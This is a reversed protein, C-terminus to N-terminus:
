YRDYKHGEERIKEASKGAKIQDYEWMMYALYAPNTRSQNTMIGNAAGKFLHAIDEKPIIIRIEYPMQMKYMGIKIEGDEQKMSTHHVCLLLRQELDIVPLYETNHDANPCMQGFFHKKIVMTDAKDPLQAIAGTTYDMAFFEYAPANMDPQRIEGDWRYQKMFEQWNKAEPIEVGITDAYKLAVAALTLWFGYDASIGGQPLKGLLQLTEAGYVNKGTKPKTQIQHVHLDGHMDGYIKTKFGNSRWIYPQRSLYYDDSNKILCYTALLIDLQSLNSVGFKQVNKIEEETLIKDTVEGSVLFLGEENRDYEGNEKVWKQIAKRRANPLKKNRLVENIEDEEIHMCTTPLLESVKKGKKWNEEIRKDLGTKSLLEYGADTVEPRHFM